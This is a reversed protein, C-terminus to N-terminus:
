DGKTVIMKDLVMKIQTICQEIFEDFKEDDFMDYLRQTSDTTRFDLTASFDDKPLFESYFYWDEEYYGYEMNLHESIEKKSLVRKHLNDGNKATVFGCYLGGNDDGYNGVEIMFWIEKGASLKKYRYVLAPFIKNRKKNYYEHISSYNDYKYDFKNNLQELPYDLHKMENELHEFLKIMLNEKSVRLSQAVAYAIRANQSSESVISSIEEYLKRRTRESSNGLADRLQVISAYLMPMDAFGEVILDLWKYIDDRFSITELEEYGVIVGDQEIPTLGDDEYPLHGDLTLYYVKTEGKTKEKAYKYYDACQREQDKAYLKAEIPIFRESTEIVIDIRRNENILYETHVKASKIEEDSVDVNLVNRIFSKLFLDGVNHLGDPKLLEALIRCVNVELRSVGSVILLNFQEGNDNVKENYKNTLEKTRELVEFISKDM